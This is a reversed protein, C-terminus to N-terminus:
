SARKASRSTRPSGRRGSPNAFPRRPRPSSPPASSCCRRSSPCWRSGSPRRSPSPCTSRPLIPLSLTPQEATVQKLSYYSFGTDGASHNPSSNPSALVQLIINKLYDMNVGERRVTRRLEAVEASLQSQSSQAQALQLDKSSLAQQLQQFAVERTDSHVSHTAERQSQVRALEFIRRESPAGSAIEAQLDVVRQQLIRVEEEKESLMSRAMGSRKNFDRKASELAADHQTAQVALRQAAEAAQQRLDGELQEIRQTSEAVRESLRAEAAALCTQLTSAREVAQRSTDDKVTLEEQLAELQAECTALMATRMAHNRESAQAETRLRTITSVNEDAAAQMDSIQDNLATAKSNALECKSRFDGLQSLQKAAGDRSDLAAKLDRRLSSLLAEQEAKLLTQASAARTQEKLRATARELEPELEVVRAQLAQVMEKNSRLALDREELAHQLAKLQPVAADLSKKAASAEKDRADLNAKAANIQMQMMLVKEELQARSVEAEKKTAELLASKATLAKEAEGAQVKLCAESERLRESDADLKRVRAQAELLAAQLTAEGSSTSSSSGSDSSSSSSSSNGSSSDGGGGEAGDSGSGSQHKQQQSQLGAVEEALAELQEQDHAYWRTWAAQVSGVDLDQEDLVGPVPIATKILDLLQRREALLTANKAMTIVREAELAQMRQKMKMTLRM